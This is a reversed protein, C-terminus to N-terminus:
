VCLENWNQFSFYGIFKVESAPEVKTKPKLTLIDVEVKRISQVLKISESVDM